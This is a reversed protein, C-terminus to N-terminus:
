LGMEELLLANVPVYSRTGNPHCLGMAEAEQITVISGNATSCQEDGDGLRDDFIQVHETNPMARAAELTSTNAAHAGETRAIVRARTAVDRWPGAEIRERIRRALADGALGEARGEALADFLADRTQADLDILGARIGANQLVRQQAADDLIFEVEIDASAEPAAKALSSALMVRFTATTIETFGAELASQLAAQAAQVDIGDLITELLAIDDPTLEGQKVEVPSSDWRFEGEGFLRRAVEEAMDGLMEFVRELRSQFIAPARERIANLKDALEAGGPVPPASPAAAIIRQESAPAANAKVLWPYFSRKEEDTLDDPGVMLRHVTSKPGAGNGNGPAVAQGQPIFTVSLNSLYVEDATTTKFNLALRADSRTIVGDRYLRGIRAAKLDENERLAQVGKNDFEASAAGLAPALTRTIEGAILKELPIVGRSWSQRVMSEMTAGVKTSQLGAGFGVVAAHVGLAATVREESVNRLASLDMDAPSFGFQEVRTPGLAVLTKGRGEGTFKADIKEKIAEAEEPTMDADNSAPSVLLGPIGMNRLLTATFSAAENDTWIERLLGKLPSLGKRLNGPDIGERFHIVSLGKTVGSPVGANEDDADLGFPRLLQPTGKVEYNYHTIFKTSDDSPWVPEINSHPVYWIEAPLKEGGQGHNIIWYANGDLALSMVTGALLVDGSYFPNPAKLLKVLESDEIPDGGEDLAVIQAEVISRYLWRVPTMLVDAGTGDGVQRAMETESTRVLGFFVSARGPFRMNSPLLAKLFTGVDRIKTFITM